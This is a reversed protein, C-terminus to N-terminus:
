RGAESQPPWVFSLSESELSTSWSAPSRGQSPPSTCCMCLVTCPHPIGEDWHLARVTAFSETERCSVLQRPGMGETAAATRMARITHADMEADSLAGSGDSAAERLKRLTEIFDSASIMGVIAQQQNDWLPASTIAQRHLAHFAQRVSYDIDIVV